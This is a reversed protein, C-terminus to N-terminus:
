DSEGYLQIWSEDDEINNKKRLFEKLVTNVLKYIIKDENACYIKLAKHVDIDIAVNTRYKEM